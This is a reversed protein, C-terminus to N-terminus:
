TALQTELVHRLAPVFESSVLAASRAVYQANTRDPEPMTAPSSFVVPRADPAWPDVSFRVVVAVDALLADM